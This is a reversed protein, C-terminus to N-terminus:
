DRYHRVRNGFSDGSSSVVSLKRDILDRQIEYVTNNIGSCQRCLKRDVGFGLLAAHRGNMFGREHEIPERCRDPLFYEQEKRSGTEAARFVREVRRHVVELDV